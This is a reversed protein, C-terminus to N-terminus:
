KDNADFAGLNSIKVRIEQQQNFVRVQEISKNLDESINEKMLRLLDQREREIDRDELKAGGQYGVSPM